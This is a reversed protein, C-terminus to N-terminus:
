PRHRAWTEAGSRRAHARCRCISSPERGLADVAPQLSESADVSALTSGRYRRTEFERPSLHLVRRGRQTPLGDDPGGKRHVAHAPLRRTWRAARRRTLFRLRPRAGTQPLLRVRSSRPRRRRREQRRRLRGRAVSILRLPHAHDLDVQRAWPQSRLMGSAVQGDDRRTQVGHLRCRAHARVATGFSRERHEGM